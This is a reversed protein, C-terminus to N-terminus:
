RIRRVRPNQNVGEISMMFSGLAAREITVAPNKLDYAGRTTDVIQWVQGNELTFRTGSGFDKVDGVIRSRLEDPRGPAPRDEFGFVELPSASGTTASAGPVTSPTRVAPGVPAGWGARSGIGPLAIADYCALRAAAEPIIRCRQVSAADIEQAQAHAAQPLMGLAWPLLAVGLLPACLVTKNMPM